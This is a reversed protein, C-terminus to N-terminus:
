ANNSLELQKKKEKEIRRQKRVLLRREREYDRM